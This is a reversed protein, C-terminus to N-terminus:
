QHHDISSILGILVRRKIYMYMAHTADRQSSLIEKSLLRRQSLRGGQIVSKVSFAFSSLIFGNSTSANLTCTEQGDAASVIVFPTGRSSQVSQLVAM